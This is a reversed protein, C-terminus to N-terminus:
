WIAYQLVHFLGVIMFITHTYSFTSCSLNGSLVPPLLADTIGSKAAYGRIALTGEPIACAEVAYCTM